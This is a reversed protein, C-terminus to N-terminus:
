APWEGIRMAVIVAALAIILCGCIIIAVVSERIQKLRDLEDSTAPDPPEFSFQTDAHSRRGNQTESAKKAMESAYAEADRVFCIAQDEFEGQADKLRWESPASLSAQGFDVWAIPQLSLMPEPTPQAQRATASGPPPVAGLATHTPAQPMEVTEAPYRPPHVLPSLIREIRDAWRRSVDDSTFATRMEELVDYISQQDMKHDPDTPHESSSM